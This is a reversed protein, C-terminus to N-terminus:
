SPLTQRPSEASSSGRGPWGALDGTGGPEVAASASAAWAKDIVVLTAWDVPAFIEIQGAAGELLFEGQSQVEAAPQASAIDPGLLIPMALDATMQQLRAAHLVADGLAAHARRRSPGYTGIVVPGSELGIGLALPQIVADERVPRTSAFLSASERVLARAAEACRREHGECRGDANWIARVNEGVVHEVVGGHAEIVDVVLCCYAHLVAALEEPRAHASLSAFNRVSAELVSITRTEFQLEGSPESQILRAAVTSPLYAELHASLRVRQARALAHEVTALTVAALVSFLALQFWPLWWAQQVLALCAAAIWSLGLLAGVLPLRKAPVGQRAAGLWLLFVGVCVILASEVPAAVAPTYPLRNDLIGSVLQAHVELGSAVASLPTAVIDGAGFATSGLLVIAGRLERKLAADGNLVDAAPLSLFGGRARWYPVRLNDNEDLPLVVDSLAPHVLARAPAWWGLSGHERPPTRWGSQGNGSAMRGSTAPAGAGLAADVSALALAVHTRGAHCIRAPIRRIVGDGDIRPTVHGTRVQTTALSASLGYWGQSQPVGVACGPEGGTVQGVRPASEPDLSFLHAAVPQAAIFSERLQADDARSEALVVDLSLVAPGAAHIAEILAGTTARSWPWPGVRELSREDIDVLVVRREDTGQAALRWFADGVRDEIAQVAAPAFWAPLSAVVWAALLALLRLTWPHVRWYQM